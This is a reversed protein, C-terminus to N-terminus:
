CGTASRAGDGANDFNAGIYSDPAGSHAVFVDPNGQFWDSDGFPESHNIM